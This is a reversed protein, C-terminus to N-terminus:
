EQKAAVRARERDWAAQEGPDLESKNRRWHYVGFPGLREFRVGDGDDTAVIGDAVPNQPAVAAQEPYRVVGFPTERYFWIKGEADTYRYLYPEALVAGAPIAIAQTATGTERAGQEAVGVSGHGSPATKSGGNNAPGEALALGVMLLSFVFLMRM